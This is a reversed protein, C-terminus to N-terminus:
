TYVYICASICGYVKYVYVYKLFLPILSISEIKVCKKQFKKRTKEM